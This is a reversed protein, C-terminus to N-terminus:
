KEKLAKLNNLGIDLDTGMMKDMNMFLGMLNFPYKMKGGVAWTVKTKDTRVSETAMYSQAVSRMPKEFRLEYDIKEGERIAKIEQEGKGVKKNGEWASIFGPIADTGTFSKQMDPDMLAWKSYDNQNRLYKVYDFIEAKPRNIIISRIVLFNKKVFLALILLLVIIGGIVALVTLLINM